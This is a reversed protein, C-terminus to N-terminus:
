RIMLVKKKWKMNMMTKMEEPQNDDKDNADCGAVFGVEANLRSVQKRKEPPKKDEDDNYTTIVVDYENDNM